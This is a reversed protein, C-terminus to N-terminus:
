RVDVPQGNRGQPLDSQGVYEQEEARNRGSEGRGFHSVEQGDDQDREETRWRKGALGGAAM